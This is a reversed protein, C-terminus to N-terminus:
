FEDHSVSFDLVEDATLFRVDSQSDGQGSRNISRRWGIFKYKVLLIAAIFACLGIAVCTSAIVIVTMNNMRGNNSNNDNNIKASRMDNLHEDRDHLYKEEISDEEQEIDNVDNSNANNRSPREVDNNVSTTVKPKVFIIGSATTESIIKQVVAPPTTAVPPTPKRTTISPLTTPIRQSTSSPKRTTLTTKGYTILKKATTPPARTSNTSKLTSMTTILRKTTRIEEITTTSDQTTLCLDIYDPCCRSYEYCEDDCDCPIVDSDSQNDWYSKLGCRDTCTEYPKWKETTSSTIIETTPEVFVCDPTLKVDDIAIDSVYGDGRVGEMIIQFEENIPGLDKYAMYWVNGQNGSKEFIANKPNLPWPDSLKKVYARLTGTTQGYMHYWFELCINGSLNGFIPSILRATDNIKRSSSEIYMYHGNSNEGKTHDFSPGTPMSYGTPTKYSDRVWDMDHNLDHTWHCINVDEFDCFLPVATHSPICSPKHNDWNIGDCYIVSPGNIEYGHQCYFNLVAGAHSSLVVGNPPPSDKKACTARVCKPIPVDWTGDNTCITTREGALQYGQNCIFKLIKGRQRSRIRGNKIVPTTCSTFTADACSILVLFTVASYLQM